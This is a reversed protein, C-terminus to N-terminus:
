YAISKTRLVVTKRTVFKESCNKVGDSCSNRIFSGLKVRGLPHLCTVMVQNEKDKRVQIHERILFTFQDVSESGEGTKTRKIALWLVCVFINYM